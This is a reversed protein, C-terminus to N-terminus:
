AILKRDMKNSLRFKGTLQDHHEYMCCNRLTTIANINNFSADNYVFGLGANTYSM